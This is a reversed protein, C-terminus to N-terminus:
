NGSANEEGNAIKRLDRKNILLYGIQEKAKQPDKYQVMEFIGKRTFQRLVTNVQLFAGEHIKYPDQDHRFFYGLSQLIDRADLAYVSDNVEDDRGYGLDGLIVQAVSKGDIQDIPIVLREPLFVNRARRAMRLAQKLKSDKSIEGENGM